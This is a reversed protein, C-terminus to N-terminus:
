RTRRRSRLMAASSLVVAMSGVMLFVLMAVTGASIEDGTKPAVDTFKGTGFRYQSTNVGNAFMTIYGEGTVGDIGEAVLTVDMNDAENKLMTGNEDMLKLYADTTGNNNDVAIFELNYNKGSELAGNYVALDILNKNQVKCLKVANPYIVLVVGRGMEWSPKAVDGKLVLMYGFDSAGEKFDVGLNMAVAVSKEMSGGYPSCPGYYLGETASPIVTILNKEANITYNVNGIPAWYKDLGEKTTIGLEHFDYKKVGSLSPYKKILSDGKETNATNGDGTSGGGTNGDGTNGDGTNGGDNSNGDGTYTWAGEKMSYSQLEAGNTYLSIFGAPISATDIDEAKMTFDGTDGDNKVLNGEEDMIRVYATTKGNEHDVTLFEVNYYTDKVAKYVIALPTSVGAQFMAVKDEYFYISLANTANWSLHGKNRILLMAAWDASENEQYTLKLKMAIGGEGFAGQAGYPSNPRYYMGWLGAPVTVTMEGGASTVFSADGGEWAQDDGNTLRPNEFAVKTGKFDPILNAAKAPIASLSSIVMTVSLALVAPLLHKKM